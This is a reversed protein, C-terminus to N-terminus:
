PVPRLRFCLELVNTGGCATCRIKEGNGAKDAWVFITADCREHKCRVEGGIASYRLTGDNDKRCQYTADCGFCRITRENQKPRMRVAVAKKCRLCDFRHSLPVKLGWVESSLVTELDAVLNECRQRLTGGSQSSRSMKKLTPAHLFSGLADYHQKLVKLTIPRDTGLSQLDKSPRGRAEQIGISISMEADAFPDLELLEIMLRRPQWDLRDFNPIEDRYARARDYTIYELCFRLEIAAYILLQETSKRLLKKAREFSRIAEFRFDSM